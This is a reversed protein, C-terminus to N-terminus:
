SHDPFDALLTIFQAFSDAAKEVRDDGLDREHDWWYVGGSGPRCGLAAAIKLLPSWEQRFWTVSLSTSRTLSGFTRAM